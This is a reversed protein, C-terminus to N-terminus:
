LFSPIPHTLIKPICVHFNYSIFIHQFPFMVKWDVICFFGCTVNGMHTLCATKKIRFANVKKWRKNKECFMKNKKIALDSVFINKGNEQRVVFLRLLFHCLGIM